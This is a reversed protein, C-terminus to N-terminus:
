RTAREDGPGAGGSEVTVVRAVRSVRVAEGRELRACAEEVRRHAPEAAARVGRARGAVDRRLIEEIQELALADLRADVQIRDDRDGFPQFAHEPPLELPIDM